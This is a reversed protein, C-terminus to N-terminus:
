ISSESQSSQAAVQETQMSKEITICITQSGKEAKTVKTAIKKVKMFESAASFQSKGDQM